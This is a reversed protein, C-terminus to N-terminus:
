LETYNKEVYVSIRALNENIKDILENKSVLDMDLKEIMRMCNNIKIVLRKFEKKDENKLVENVESDLSAVKRVIDDVDNDTHIIVNNKIRRDQKIQALETMIRELMIETKENKSLNGEPYNAESAQVIKVLSHTKGDRTEILARTINERALLVNEYLRDSKYPITNIGSVDFIRESKEDQVLVVPKNYAQRLGLEYLVNPNRSSLDCLAMDCNQIRDFIKLIISDCINDKDVRDAAYGAEKIAPKFIQEYVKTFHGDPYGPQDSIPMIVFCKPMNEDSINEDSINDNSM